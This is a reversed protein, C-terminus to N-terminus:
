FSTTKITRSINRKDVHIDLEEMEAKQIDAMVKLLMLSSSVCVKNLYDLMIKFKENDIFGLASTM